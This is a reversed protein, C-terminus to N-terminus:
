SVSEIHLDSISYGVTDSMDAFVSKVKGGRDNLYIDVSGYVDTIYQQLLRVVELIQPSYNNHSSNIRDYASEIADKLLQRDIDDSLLESSTLMDHMSELASVMLAGRSQASDLLDTITIYDDILM